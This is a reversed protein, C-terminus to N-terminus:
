SQLRHETSNEKLDVRLSLIALARPPLILSSYTQPQTGTECINITEVLM